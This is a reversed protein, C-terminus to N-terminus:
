HFRSRHEQRQAQAAQLRSLDVSMEARLADIRARVTSRAQGARERREAIELAAPLAITTGRQIESGNRLFELASAKVSQQSLNSAVNKWVDDERIPRYEGVPLRGAIQRREAAENVILWTTDRQRSEATYAKLGQTMKSGDPLADIHESSTIGQSADITVAYGYALQPLGEKMPQFKRWPLFADQGENNRATLGDASTKLVTIVDGNSAFHQNDATWVRNFVRVRDGSSLALSQPGHEGRMTVTVTREDQGLRGMARMEQRIAVGIAHADQNTPASITLRFDPEDGRAEIRERWLSAVREIMAQRGGAVAMATRDERKMAIADAAKGERFLSAIDKERETRQRNSILVEPIADGLAEQLLSITPGSEVAQCQKPDGVALLMFGHKQQLEMLKLMDSRGVQSLEDVLVIANEDLKWKAKGRLFPDIASFDKKGIGAGRLAAATKWAIALGYVNRDEARGAAVIPSLLTTKGVGAAGIAIGFRSAALKDIAASQEQWSKGKPDINPRTALFDQKAKELTAQPLATSKDAAFTKALAIVKEEEFEHAATTVSWREKGRMPVDKGFTIATMQGDQRVGHQRYMQMVAKIDRAPDDGIGAEILGRAAFERFDQASLKAKKSLAEEILDLSVAYAVQHRLEPALEQKIENPRLVSRHHYGLEDAAQKRWEAFDSTGDKDNKRNRTAEVGKRLLSLQQEGSLKDWDQGSEQAFSRAAAVVDRTRKSFHERVREPVAIIRAAGTGRDLETQIGHARLNRALAAQYVAGLEKVLGDLRDLDMSGFHGDETMVAALMPAHTHIQMDAVRMPVDEFETYAQGHEDVRAIEATPRSTYHNALLWGVHAREIGDQGDKGRRTWGLQDEAYRMAAGVAGDHAQIIVSREAETPALAWAVSVSKDASWIMDVFAIPQRTANLSWTIDSVNANLGSVLRGAKMHEVQEPTPEHGSAIGYASLFRKRAGEVTKDQLPTGNAFAPAQGDARRGALVNEVAAASPLAKEDLGFVQAVSLMPRHIQKGEIAQGDARLGTLLNAVEGQTPPRTLDVGLRRALEPNMDARVKVVTGGEVALADRMEAKAAVDLLQNTLREELGDIDQPAGFMRMHARTLENLADSFLVDGDAIARGLHDMGTLEAPLREGAYYKALAENEPRFNESTLYKAIAKGAAGSGAVGTRYRLM